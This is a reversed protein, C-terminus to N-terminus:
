VQLLDTELQELNMISLIVKINYVNKINIAVVM